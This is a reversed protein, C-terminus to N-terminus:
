QLRPPRSNGARERALSDLGPGLGHVARNEQVVQRVGERAQDDERIPRGLGEGQPVQVGIGKVRAIRAGVESDLRGEFTAAFGSEQLDEAFQGVPGHGGGVDAPGREEPDDLVKTGREQNVLGVGKQGAVVLQFANQIRTVAAFGSENQAGSRGVWHGARVPFGFGGSRRLHRRKTRSWAGAIAESCGCRGGPKFSRAVSMQSGSNASASRAPPSHGCCARSAATPKLAAECSVLGMLESSSSMKTRKARAGSWRSKVRSRTLPKFALNRSRGQASDRLPSSM